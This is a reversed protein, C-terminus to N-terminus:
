SCLGYLDNFFFSIHPYKQPSYENGRTILVTKVGLKHAHTLNRASDEIMVADSASFGTADLVHQVPQPSESKKIGGTREFAYIDEDKFVSGFQTHKMIKKAWCFNGQTLLVKHGPLRGILKPLNGDVEVLNIDLYSHYTDALDLPHIGYKVTFIHHSSRYLAYSEAALQKAEEFALGPVFDCAALVSARACDADIAPTAPFTVGDNDFIWLKTRNAVEGFDQQNQLTM